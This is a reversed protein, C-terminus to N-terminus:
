SEIKKKTKFAIKKELTEIENKIKLEKCKCNHEELQICGSCFDLKCWMCNVVLKKRKCHTCKM